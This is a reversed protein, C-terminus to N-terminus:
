PPLQARRDHQQALFVGHAQADNILLFYVARKFAAELDVGRYRFARPGRRKIGHAVQEALECVWLTYGYPSEADEGVAVPM